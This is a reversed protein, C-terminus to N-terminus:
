PRLRCRAPRNLVRLVNRNFEATVGAADDYAAVIRAPDKVLDTGILLHDTADMTCNLDFLFRQRQAPTLNGITGGM